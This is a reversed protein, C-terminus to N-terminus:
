SLALSALMADYAPRNAQAVETRTYYYLTYCRGGNRFVVVECEQPIGEPEYSYRFGRADKGAICAAFYEGCRYGSARYSKSLAKEVRKALSEESALKALLAAADKWIVTIAIHRSEDRAGWMETYDMGYLAQLKEQTLVAFGDPLEIALGGDDIYTKGM